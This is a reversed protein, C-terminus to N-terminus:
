FGNRALAAYYEFTNWLPRHLEGYADDGNYKGLIQLVENPTPSLLNKYDFGDLDAGHLLVLAAMRINFEPDSRLRVWIEWVDDLNSPDHNPLSTFRRVPDNAWNIAAIATRAKIQCLGTSSDETPLAPPPMTPDLRHWHTMEVQFDVLEDDQRIVASEWVLVTQVFAKRMNYARALGTLLEDCQLPM